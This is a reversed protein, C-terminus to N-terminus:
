CITNNYWTHDSDEFVLKVDVFLFTVCLAQEDKKSVITGKFFAHM